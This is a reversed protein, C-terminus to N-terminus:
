NQFWLIFSYLYLYLDHHGHWPHLILLYSDRVSFLSSQPRHCCVDDYTCYVVSVVFPTDINDVCPNSLDAIVPLQHENSAVTASATIRQSSQQQHPVSRVEAGKLSASTSAADGGSKEWDTLDASTFTYVDWVKQSTHGCASCKHCLYLCHCICGPKNPIM